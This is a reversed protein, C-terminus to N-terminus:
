YKLLKKIRKKSQFIIEREDKIKKERMIVQGHCILDTVCNEPCSFILDSLKDHNFIFNPQNNDILFLDALYGEKIKGAKVGLAQAGNETAIKFMEQASIITPSFNSIKQLLSGAKMEEFMNLNNNACASDTGLCIKIGEKLLNQYPFIGSALKINSIPNYVLYSHYDALIKIEKKSLWVGHAFIFNPGLFKIKKLYEVPRLKNKKLSNDVEEKTEALHFHILLNNKQAFNKAWILNEQSVTYISHPALSFKIKEMKEKQWKQWFRVVDERRGWPSSDLITLGIVARLGMEQIAKLAAEQFFYMDNFCTTGTKIMELCALKTGWYVDDASLKNELPWIKKELWDKLSLDEGVGKFLSMASHTHANILGPLIVKEGYGDIKDKAKKNIKSAIKQIKGESIFIDVKKNKLIVNKILLSM